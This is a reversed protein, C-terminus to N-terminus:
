PPLSQPSGHHRAIYWPSPPSSRAQDNDNRAYRLLRKDRNQIQRGLLSAVIFEPSQKKAPAER